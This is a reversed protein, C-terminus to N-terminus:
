RSKTTSKSPKPKKSTRKSLSSRQSSEKKRRPADTRKSDPLVAAKSAPKKAKRQEVVPDLHDLYFIQDRSERETGAKRHEALDDPEEFKATDKMQLLESQTITGKVVVLHLMMQYAVNMQSQRLLSLEIRDFGTNYAPFYFFEMRLLRLDVPSKEHLSWAANQTLVFEDQSIVSEASRTWYRPSHENFLQKFQPNVMHASVHAYPLVMCVIAKHRCVRYLETLAETLNDAYELSHAAMVFDVSHDKFPLPKNVDRRGLEIRM